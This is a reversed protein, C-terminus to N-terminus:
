KLMMYEVNNKIRDLERDMEQLMKVIRELERKLKGAEETEM